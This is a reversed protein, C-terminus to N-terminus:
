AARRKQRESHNENQMARVIFTELREAYATSCRGEILEELGRITWRRKIKTQFKSRRWRNKGTTEFLGCFERYWDANQEQVARIMGGRMACDPDHSPILVVELRSCKLDALMERAKASVGGPAYHSHKANM